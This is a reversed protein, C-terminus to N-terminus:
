LQAMLIALCRVTMNREFEGIQEICLDRFSHGITTTSTEGHKLFASMALLRKYQARPAADSANPHVAFYASGCRIWKASSVGLSGLYGAVRPPRSAM